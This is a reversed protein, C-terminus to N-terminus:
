SEYWVVPIKCGPVMYVNLIVASFAAAEDAKDSGKLMRAAFTGSAGRLRSFTTAIV